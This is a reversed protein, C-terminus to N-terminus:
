PVGLTTLSTASISCTPLQCPVLGLQTPYYRKGFDNWEKYDNLLWDNDSHLQSKGQLYSSFILNKKGILLPDNFNEPLNRMHYTLLLEYNYNILNLEKVALATFHHDSHDGQNVMADYHSIAIWPHPICSFDTEITIVSNITKKFDDWNLYTQPVSEATNYSVNFRLNEPAWEKLRFNYIRVNKITYKQVIHTNINVQEQIVDNTKLITKIANVQGLERAMWYQYGYGANGATTTMIIIKSNQAIIDDYSNGKFLMWDDPHANIYFALGNYLCSSNVM